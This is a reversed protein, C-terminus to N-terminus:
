LSSAVADPPKSCDQELLSRQEDAPTLAFRLLYPYHGARDTELYFYPRKFFRSAYARIEDLLDDLAAEFSEGIGIVGLNQASVAVDGDGLTVSLPLTFTNLWRRLDDPRVLLMVEKGNHRQVMQPQRTRVVSDMVDSLSAKASSFNREPLASAPM